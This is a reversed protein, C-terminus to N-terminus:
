LTNCEWGHLMTMRIYDEVAQEKETELEVWALRVYCIDDQYDITVEIVEFEYPDKFASDSIKDGKHPIINSKFFKYIERFTQVKGKLLVQQMLRIEM